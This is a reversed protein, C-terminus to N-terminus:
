GCIRAAKWYTLPLVIVYAHTSGEKLVGAKEKARAIVLNISRKSYKGNQGEFLYEKPHYQVYYHRLLV